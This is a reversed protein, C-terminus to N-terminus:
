SGPVVIPMIVQFLVAVLGLGVVLYVIWKGASVFASEQGRGEHMGHAFGIVCAIVILFAFLGELIPDLAIVLPTVPNPVTIAAAVLHFM